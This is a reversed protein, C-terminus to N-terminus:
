LGEIFTKLEEGEEVDLQERLVKLDIERILTDKYNNVSEDILCVDMKVTGNPWLVNEGMAVIRKLYNEQVETRLENIAEVYTAKTCTSNMIWLM